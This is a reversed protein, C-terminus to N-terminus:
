SLCASEPANSGVSKKGQVALSACATLLTAGHLSISFSAASTCFTDALKPRRSKRRLCMSLISAM